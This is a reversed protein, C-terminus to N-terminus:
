RPRVTAAVLDARAQYGAATLHIQDPGTWGKGASASYWDIVSNGGRAISQNFMGEQYQRDPRGTRVNMWWIPNSGIAARQDAVYKNSRGANGASFVADNTGLAVVWTIASSNWIPNSAKIRRAADVGNPVTESGFEVTRSTTADICIPGWGAARLARATPAASGVTLSDGVVVIPGKSGATAIHVVTQYPAIQIQYVGDASPAPAYQLCGIPGTAGTPSTRPAAAPASAIPTGTFWGTIDVTARAGTTAAVAIGTTSVSTIGLNAVTQGNADYSTSSTTPQRTRAAWATIWGSHGSEAVTINAAVAGVGAGTVSATAATVAARPALRDASRTDLVRVPTAPVFLGASAKAASPGTFYGSVDLTIRGGASSYVTLGSPSVPVIQTITRTQQAADTNLASVNPATMEAPYVSVYGSSPSGSITMTVALATADAPVGAPLRVTVSGGAPLGRGRAARTDLARAPPTPVYRGSTASTAPYFAGSVDVVIHASNSTFLSLNGDGGLSLLAAKSRTERIAYNSTPAIPMPRGSAWATVFGAGVADTVTVTIAVASPAGVGCRGRVALLMSAGAAPKAQDRTDLLRCPAVPRYATTAAEVKVPAAVAAGSIGAVGIVLAACTLALAPLKATALTM